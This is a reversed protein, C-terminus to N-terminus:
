SQDHRINKARRRQQFASRKDSFPLAGDREAGAGCRAVIHLSPQVNSHNDGPTSVTPGHHGNETEGRRPELEPCMAAAYAAFGTMCEKTVRASVIILMNWLAIGTGAYGASAETILSSAGITNVVRPEATQRSSRQGRVPNFRYIARDPEGISHDAAVDRQLAVDMAADAEGPAPQNLPGRRRWTEAGNPRTPILAATAIDARSKTATARHQPIGSPLANPCRRSKYFKRIIESVNAMRPLAPGDSEERRRHAFPRLVSPLTM